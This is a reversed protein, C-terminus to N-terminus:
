PGANMVSGGSWWVVEIVPLAIFGGTNTGMDTATLLQVVKAALISGGSHNCWSDLTVLSCHPRRPKWGSRARLLSPKYTLQMLECGGM